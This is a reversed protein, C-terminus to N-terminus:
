PGFKTLGSDLPDEGLQVDDILALIGFASWRYRLVFLVNLYLIIERSYAVHKTWSSGVIQFAPATCADLGSSGDSAM